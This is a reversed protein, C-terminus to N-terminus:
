DEGVYIVRGGLARLDLQKLATMKDCLDMDTLSLLNIRTQRKLNSGM